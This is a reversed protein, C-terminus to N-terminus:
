PESFVDLTTNMMVLGLIELWFHFLDKEKGERHVGM